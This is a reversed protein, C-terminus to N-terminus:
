LIPCSIPIDRSELLKVINYVGGSIVLDGKNQTMPIATWMPYRAVINIWAEDDFTIQVPSDHNIAKLVGQTAAGLKDLLNPEDLVLEAADWDRERLALAAQLLLLVSLRM